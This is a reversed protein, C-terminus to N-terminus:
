QSKPGGFSLLVDLIDNEAGAQSGTTVLRHETGCM